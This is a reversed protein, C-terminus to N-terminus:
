DLWLRVILGLTYGGIFQITNLPAYHFLHKTMVIGIYIMPLDKLFMMVGKKEGRNAGNVFGIAIAFLLLEMEM